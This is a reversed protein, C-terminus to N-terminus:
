DAESCMCSCAEFVVDGCTEASQDDCLSEARGAAQSESEAKIIGEPNWHTVTGGALPPECIYSCTCSYEKDAACGALCGLVVSLAVMMLAKM